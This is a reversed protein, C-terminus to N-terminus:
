KKKPAKYPKVLKAKKETKVKPLKYFGTKPDYKFEKREKARKKEYKKRAASFKAILDTYRDLATKKPPVAPKGTKIGLVADVAAAAAANSAKKSIKEPNKKIAKRYRKDKAVEKYMRKLVKKQEKKKMGDLSAIQIKSEAM